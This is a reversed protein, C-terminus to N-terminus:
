VNSNVKRATLKGSAARAMELVAEKGWASPKKLRDLNAVAFKCKPSRDCNWFTGGFRNICPVLLGHRCQPCAPSWRRAEAKAAVLGGRKLVELVHRDRKQRSIYDLRRAIRAHALAKAQAQKKRAWRRRMAAQEAALKKATM